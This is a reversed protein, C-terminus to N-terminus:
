SLQLLFRTSSPRVHSPSIRQHRRSTTSRPEKGRAAKWGPQAERVTPSVALRNRNHGVIGDPARDLVVGASPNHLPTPPLKAGAVQRARRLIRDPAVAEPKIAPQRFRTPLKM